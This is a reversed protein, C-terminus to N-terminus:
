PGVELGYAAAEDPDGLVEVHVAAEGRAMAAAFRHWGDILTVGRHVYLTPPDSGDNVWTRALHAIRAIHLVRDTDPNPASTWTDFPGPDPDTCALVDVITFPPCDWAPSEYPHLPLMDLLRAIRIAAIPMTGTETM